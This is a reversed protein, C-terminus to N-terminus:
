WLSLGEDKGAMLEPLAAKLAEVDLNNKEIFDTADDIAASIEHHLKMSKYHDARTRLGLSEAVIETWNHVKIPFQGEFVCLDRHCTHYLTALTDAGASVASKVSQKHADRRMTEVNNLAGPGCTYAWHKHEEFEVLELGPIAALISEVSSGISLGGDHQHLAVRRRVPKLRPKISDLRSFLYDSFHQFEFPYPKYGNVTEGFQLVCTPCWHLVKKPQLAALRDVTNGNMRGAAKADGHFKLHIIGCCNAAGGIMAYEIGLEDLIDMVTFVIVPTRIVNCGLYFVFEASEPNGAMGTIRKYEEPTMQMGAALKIIQAMRRYFVSLPNEGRKTKDARVKNLAISLMLRPNIREPCHSICEGSGTCIEAWNTAYDSALKGHLVDIVDSIVQTPAAQRLTPSSEHIVPCVEVCKGCQTCLETLKSGQIDLHEHLPIANDSGDM